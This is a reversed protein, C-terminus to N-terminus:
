EAVPGAIPRKPPAWDSVNFIEGLRDWQKRAHELIESKLHKKCALCMTQKGATKDTEDIWGDWATFPLGDHFNNSKRGEELMHRCVSICTQRTSCQSKLGDFAGRLFIEETGTEIERIKRHANAYTIQDAVDLRFTESAHSVGELVSSSDAESVCTYFLMPLLSTRQAERALLILPVTDTAQMELASSEGESFAKRTTRWLDYDSPFVEELRAFGSKVIHQM